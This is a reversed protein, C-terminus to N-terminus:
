FLLGTFKRNRKKKEGGFFWMSIFLITVFVAWYEKYNEVDTYFIDCDCEIGDSPNQLLEFYDICDIKTFVINDLLYPYARCYTSRHDIFQPSIGIRKM